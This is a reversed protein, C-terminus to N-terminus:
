RNKLIMIFSNPIIRKAVCKSKKSQKGLCEQLHACFLCRDGHNVVVAGHGRMDAVDGDEDLVGVVFLQLSIGAVLYSQHQVRRITGATQLHIVGDQILKDCCKYCM